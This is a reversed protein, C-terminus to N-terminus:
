YLPTTRWSTPANNQRQMQFQLILNKEIAEKKDKALGLLEEDEDDSLITYKWEGEGWESALEQTIKSPVVEPHEEINVIRGGSAKELNEYSVESGSKKSKKLM